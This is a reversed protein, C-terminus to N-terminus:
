RVPFTSQGGVSSSSYYRSTLLKSLGFDGVKVTFRKKEDQSSVLLNRAALDRHIVGKSSIYKM